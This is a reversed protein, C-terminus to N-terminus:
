FSCVGKPLLNFLSVHLPLAHLLTAAPFLCALDKLVLSFCYSSEAILRCLYLMGVALLIIFHIGSSLMVNYAPKSISLWFASPMNSLM